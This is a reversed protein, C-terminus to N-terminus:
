IQVIVSSFSFSITLHTNHFFVVTNVPEEHGTVNYSPMKSSYLKFRWGVSGKKEKVMVNNSQDTIGCEIENLNVYCDFRSKVANGNCQRDALLCLAFKALIAHVRVHIFIAFHSAHTHTPIHSTSLSSQLVHSPRPNWWMLHLKGFSRLRKNKAIHTHTHTCVWTESPWLFLSVGCLGPQLPGAWNTQM